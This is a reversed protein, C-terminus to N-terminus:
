LGEYKKEALKDRYERLADSERKNIRASRVMLFVSLFLFPASAMRSVRELEAPIFNTDFGIQIIVWCFIITFSISYYTHARAIDGCEESMHAILNLFARNLRELQKEEDM